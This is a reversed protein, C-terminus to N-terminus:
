NKKEIVAFVSEPTECITFDNAVEPSIFGKLIDAGIVGLMGDWFGNINYLVVPKDHRSLIKLTMIQFFEDFTGLGGPTIIFADAKDEMITKREAMTETAILETCLTSVPELKHMFHPTVGIIQGGEAAMGRAAAGMLGTSGAGFVMTHGRKAMARGLAEVGDIYARDIKDSASGYLTINM